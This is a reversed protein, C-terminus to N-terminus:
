SRAGACRPSRRSTATPDSVEAFAAARDLIREIDDRTLDAIPLLHALARAERRTAARRDSDLRSVPRPEADGDRDDDVDRDVQAPTRRKNENDLVTKPDLM